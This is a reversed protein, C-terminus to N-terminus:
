TTMAKDNLVGTVSRKHNVADLSCFHIMIERSRTPFNMPLSVWNISIEENKEALWIFRGRDSM